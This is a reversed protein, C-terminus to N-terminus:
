FLYVKWEVLEGAFVTTVTRSCSSSAIDTAISPNQPLVLVRRNLIVAKADSQRFKVRFVYWVAGADKKNKLVLLSELEVLEGAFVTTVTRSCSSSAIDIAILSNQPLVSM